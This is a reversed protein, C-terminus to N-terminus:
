FKANVGFMVIKAYPNSVDGNEPNYGIHNAGTVFNQLNVNFVLGKIYKSKILKSFDYSLQINKLIFYSWDANTRDSLMVGKAGAMPADGDMNSPSWMAAWGEKTPLGTQNRVSNNVWLAYNGTNQFAIAWKSGNNYYDESGSMSAYDWAGQGYVSLKLEKWRVSANFGYFYSPEISGICQADNISLGGDGDIDEYMESGVGVTGALKPMKAIYADLESQSKIIGLSHWAYVGNVPQGVELVRSLGTTASGDYATIRDAGDYLKKIENTNYTFNGGITVTWDKSRYVDASLSLEIGQNAVEGVNSLVSSYGSTSPIPVTYLLDSTQRNYYDFAVDLRDWLTLDFGLDLQATKEWKLKSNGVSEYFGQLTSSGDSYNSDSSATALRALSQYNGIEQNGTIGYSGRIKLNTIVENDKLFGEESMRWALGVSPFTGWKSDSGFRSSGDFRITATLLYKDKYAYTGRATWSILRNNYIDSDSKLSAQDVGAFDWAGLRDNAFNGSMTSMNYKYDQWSYVGTLSMRHDGWQNSYTFINDMLRSENRGWTHTGSGTTSGAQIGKATQSGLWSYQNTNKTDYGINLRYNFHDTFNVQAFFNGIFRTTKRRNDTAAIDALPNFAEGHQVINFSGDENYPADTPWGYRFIDNTIPNTQINQTGTTFQMNAGITFWKNFDHELNTHLSVKEFGQSEILGDQNYYGASFMYKTDKAMGDLAVGYDQTLATKQIIEEQWNYFKGNYGAQFPAQGGQNATATNIYQIFDTGEITELLRSRMQVGVNAHFSINHRGEAGKKTTIMVVGNAGRSGYIATASADKLVEISEVDAPNFDNMNGDTLPFGDVVYLPDTGANISASGRIRLTPAEGPQNNTFVAVGTSKGQLAEIPNAAMVSTIEESRLSTTSGTLDSRKMTGYGVVVVDDLTAADEQLTVTINTKGAVNVQQTKYGIYSVSLVGNAPVSLSFEGNLGTSTGTTTGEVVVSAGIVPEGAADKVTGTVQQQAYTFVSIALFCILLSLKRAIAATVRNMTFNKM